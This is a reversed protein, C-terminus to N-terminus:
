AAACRLQRLGYGLLGLAGFGLLTLSTPEPTTSALSQLQIGNLDGENNGGGFTFSLNGSVDAMATFDAYNLGNQFTTSGSPDAVTQSTGDLTFVTARGPYDSSSYLLLRYSGGPTLGSFTATATRGLYSYVYDDM